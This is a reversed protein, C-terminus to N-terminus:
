LWLKLLQCPQKEANCLGGSLVDSYVQNIYEITNQGYNHNNVLGYQVTNQRYNHNTEQNFYQYLTQL